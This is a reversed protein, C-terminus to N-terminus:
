VLNASIVSHDSLGETLTATVTSAGATTLNNMSRSISEYIYEVQVIHFQGQNSLRCNITIFWEQCYFQGQNGTRSWRKYSMRDFPPMSSSIVNVVESKNCLLSLQMYINKIKINLHLMSTKIIYCIGYNFGWRLEVLRCDIQM